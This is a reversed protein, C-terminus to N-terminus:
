RHRLTAVALDQSALGKLHKQYFSDTTESFADSPINPGAKWHKWKHQNHLRQDIYIYPQYIQELRICLGDL